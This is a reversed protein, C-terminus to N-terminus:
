YSSVGETFLLIYIKKVTDYHTKQLKAVKAVPLGHQLLEIEEPYKKKYYELGFKTGTKRGSKKNSKNIGSKIREVMLEREHQALSTLIGIILNATADKRTPHLLLDVNNVYVGVGKSKLEEICKMVDPTSRGLRSIEHVMVLNISKDKDLQNIIKVFEPRMSYPKAGSIVESYMDALEWDKNNCREELEALQRNTDQDKTSVRTYAIVKFKDM